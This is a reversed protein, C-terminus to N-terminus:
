ANELHTLYWDVTKAIGNNFNESREGAWNRKLRPQMSRTACITARAIRYLRSISNTLARASRVSKIWCIAFPRSLRSTRGSTAVVSITLRAPSAGALHSILARATIWSTSGIACMSVRATSQFPNKACLKASIPPILKEKHQKPGYNNSCNTTVVNLGFTHHYSRM